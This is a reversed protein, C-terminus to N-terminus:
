LESSSVLGRRRAAKIALSRLVSIADPHARGWATWIIPKYVIGQAQMTALHHKYKRSKVDLYHQTADTCGDSDAPM